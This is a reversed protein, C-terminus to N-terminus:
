ILMKNIIQDLLEFVFSIYCDAIKKIKEKKKKLKFNVQWHRFYVCECTIVFLNFYWISNLFSLEREKENEEM